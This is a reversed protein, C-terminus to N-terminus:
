FVLCTVKKMRRLRRRAATLQFKAIRRCITGLNPLRRRAATLQFVSRRDLMTLKYLCGGELPQSNFRFFDPHRCLTDQYDGEPPQSNFRATYPQRPPTVPLRRRAATLQFGFLMQMMLPVSMCGGEPPQQSFCIGNSFLWQGIKRHIILVALRSFMPNAFHQLYSRRYHMQSDSLNCLTVTDFTNEARATCFLTHPPM